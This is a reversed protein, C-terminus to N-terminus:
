LTQKFCVTICNTLVCSFIYLRVLVSRHNVQFGWCPKELQYSLFAHLNSCLVLITSDLELGDWQAWQSHGGLAVDGRSHSVESSGLGWRERRLRALAGGSKPLLVTGRGGAPGEGARLGAGYSRHTLRSLYACLCCLM